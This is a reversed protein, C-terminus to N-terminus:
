SAPAPRERLRRPRAPLHLASGHREDPEGAPLRKGRIRGTSSACGSPRRDATSATPVGFGSHRGEAPRVGRPEGGRPEHGLPRPDTRRHGGHHAEPPLTPNLRELAARLRPVLVVEGKTERGLTGGAGFVEEMASVTEWGLEAFLEIAPQEVLQDETYAYAM